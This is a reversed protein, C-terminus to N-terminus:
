SSPLAIAAAAKRQAAASGEPAAPPIRRAPDAEYAALDSLLWLRQGCVYIPRPFTADNQLVRFLWADSRGGFRRKVQSATAYIATDPAPAPM